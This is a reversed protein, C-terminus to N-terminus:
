SAADGGGGGGNGGCKQAILDGVSDFGYTDVTNQFHGDRASLAKLMAAPNKYTDGNALTCGHGNGNGAAAPGAALAALILGGALAGAIKNKRM